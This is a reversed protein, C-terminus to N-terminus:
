WASRRKVAEIFAAKVITWREPRGGFWGAKLPPWEVGMEDAQSILRNPQDDASGIGRWMFRGLPLAGLNNDTGLTSDLYALNGWVELEDFLFEADPRLGDCLPALVEALHDSSPASRRQNGFLEQTLIDAHYAALHDCATREKGQARLRILLLKRLLGWNESALAGFASAYLACITPYRMAEVWVSHYPGLLQEQHAMLTLASILCAEQPPKALRCGHFLLTRVLETRADIQRVRLATLHPTPTPDGAVGFEAHLQKKLQNAEDLVLDELRIRHRDEALFRKLISVTTAVSTPPKTKLEVVSAVKEELSVFFADAGTTVVV